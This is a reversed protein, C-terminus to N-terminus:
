LLKYKWLTVHGDSGATALFNQMRSVDVSRVRMDGQLTLQCIGSETDWVRVSQDNSGTVVWQTNPLFAISRVRAQTVFTETWIAPHFFFTVCM